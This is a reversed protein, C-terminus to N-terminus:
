RRRHKAGRVSGSGRAENWGPFSPGTREVVEGGSDTLPDNSISEGPALNSAIRACGAQEVEFVLEAMFV